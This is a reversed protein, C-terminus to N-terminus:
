CVTLQSGQHEGVEGQVLYGRTVLEVLVDRLSLLRNPNARGALLGVGILPVEGKAFGLNWRM